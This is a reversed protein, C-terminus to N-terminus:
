AAAAVDGPLMQRVLKVLTSMAFPKSLVRMGPALTSEGVLADDAYGTIFLIPLEPRLRRGADAMERGNMIPMMIDSVLLDIPDPSRLIALGEEGDCAELTRYGLDELLEVVIMRVSPEDDVVLVM